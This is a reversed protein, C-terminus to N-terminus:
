GEKALIPRPCSREAEKTDRQRREGDSQPSATELLDGRVGIKILTLPIAKGSDRLALKVIQVLAFCCPVEM